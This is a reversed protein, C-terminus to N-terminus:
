PNTQTPASNHKAKCEDCMTQGRRVATGCHWACLRPSNPFMYRWLLGFGVSVALLALIILTPIM